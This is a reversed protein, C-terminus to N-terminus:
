IEQSNLFQSIEDISMDNRIDLSEELNKGNFFSLSPVSNINYQERFKNLKTDNENESDLYIITYESNEQASSLKPVFIQCYPCTERGIYLFFNEQNKQKEIVDSAEKQEFAEVYDNYNTSSTNDETSKHQNCSALLIINLLIIVVFLKNDKKMYKNNKKM